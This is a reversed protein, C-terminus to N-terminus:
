SHEKFLSELYQMHVGMVAEMITQIGRISVHIERKETVVMFILNKNELNTFTIRESSDAIPYSSPVEQKDNSGQQVLHLLHFLLHYTCLITTTM